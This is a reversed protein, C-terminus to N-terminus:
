ATWKLERLRKIPSEVVFEFSKHPAFYTHQWRRCHPNVSKILLREAPLFKTAVVSLMSDVSIFMNAGRTVAISGLLSLQNQLDVVGAPPGFADPWQKTADAGQHLVVLPMHRARAVSLTAALEDSTFNRHATYENYSRPVFVAYRKPLLSTLNSFQSKLNSIQSLPWGRFPMDKPFVEMISWDVAAVAQTNGTEHAFDAKSFFCCRESWDDWLSVHRARPALQQLYERAEIFRPTAYYIVELDDPVRRFCSVALVDGIGGTIFLARPNPEVVPKPDRHIRLFPM